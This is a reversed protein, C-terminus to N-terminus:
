AWYCEGGITPPNTQDGTLHPLPRSDSSNSTLCCTRSGAAWLGGSKSHLVERKFQNASIWVQFFSPQLVLQTYNLQAKKKSHPQQQIQTSQVKNQAPKWVLGCPEPEPDIFDQARPTKSSVATGFCLESFARVPSQPMKMANKPLIPKSNSARTKAPAKNQMEESWVNSLWIFCMSTVKPICFATQHQLMGMWSHKCSAHWQECVCCTGNWFIQDRAM